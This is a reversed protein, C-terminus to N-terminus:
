RPFTWQASGFTGFEGLLQMDRLQSEKPVEFIIYGDIGNEKGMRIPGLKEARFGGSEPNTGTYRIFYGFPPATVTKYYNTLEDFEKIRLVPNYSVNTTSTFLQDKVQIAFKSEDLPWFSPDEQITTGIMEEHIWVVFFRNGTTPRTTFYNGTSPNWWTYRDLFAHRYQVIGIQMDKLGQVDSRYFKYWQNESRPGPAFPDIYEEEVPPLSAPTPEPTWVVVASATPAVPTTNPIEPAQKEPLTIVGMSFSLWVVIVVVVLSIMAIETLEQIGTKENM